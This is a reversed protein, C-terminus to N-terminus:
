QVYSIVPKIGKESIDLNFHFEQTDNIEQIHGDKFQDYDIFTDVKHPNYYVQGTVSDSDSDSDSELGNWYGVLFAHRNKVNSERVAKQGSKGIVTYCNSLIGEDIYGLVKGATRASKMEVVSYDKRHANFHIGVLMGKELKKGQRSTFM